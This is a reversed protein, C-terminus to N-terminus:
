KGVTTDRLGVLLKDAEAQAMDDGYLMAVLLAHDLKLIYGSQHQIARQLVQCHGAPSLWM